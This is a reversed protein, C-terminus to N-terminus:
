VDSLADNAEEHSMIGVFSYGSARWWSEITEIGFLPYFAYVGGPMRLARARLYFATASAQMAFMIRYCGLSFFDWLSLSLDRGYAFEKELLLQFGRITPLVGVYVRPGAPSFREYSQKTEYVTARAVNDGVLAVGYCGVEGCLAGNYNLLGPPGFFTGPTRIPCRPPCSM